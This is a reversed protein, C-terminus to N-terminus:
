ALCRVPVFRQSVQFALLAHHGVPFHHCRVADSDSVKQVEKQVIIIQPSDRLVVNCCELDLGNQIRFQSIEFSYIEGRSADLFVYFITQFADFRTGYVAFQTQKVPGELDAIVSVRRQHAPNREEGLQRFVFGPFTKQLRFVILFEQRFQRRVEPAIQPPKDRRGESPLM